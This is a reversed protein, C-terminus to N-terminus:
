ELSSMEKRYAAIVLRRCVKGTLTRPLPRDRRVVQAARFRSPAAARLGAFIQELDLDPLDSRLPVVFLTAVDNGHPGPLGVVCTEAFHVSQYWPEMEDPHVTEGTSSVIAEKLRGTIFVNGARDILGADGTHLWADRLADSTAAQDGRYGRMVGPSRVLIEDHLGLMVEVGPTPRGASGAPYEGSRGITVVPGAETLGYGTDLDIGLALFIDVLAPDIAAGGVILREFDPGIFARLGSRIARLRDASLESVLRRATVAPVQRRRGRDIIGHGSLRDLLEGYLCNLLAPVVLMCAIREERLCDVLRNPLLSPAYVVEAGCTMPALLGVVLEFMHALPLVSLLRDGRGVRRVELVSRVNSLLNAHTLEVIRPTATSGSTLAFVAPEDPLGTHMTPGTPAHASLLEAAFFCDLKPHTELLQRSRPNVIALKAGARDAVDAIISPVTDAPIAVVVGGAALIGFFAAVWEPGSPSALLVPAAPSVGRAALHGAVRWAALRLEDYTLAVPVGAGGRVAPLPGFEAAAGDLFAPLTEFSGINM